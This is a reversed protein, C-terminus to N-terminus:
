LYIRFLDSDENIFIERKYIGILDAVKLQAYCYSYNTSYVAMGHHHPDLNTEHYLLASVQGHLSFDVDMGQHLRSENEEHSAFGINEGHSFSDGEMGSYICNQFVSPHSFDKNAEHCLYGDTVEYCLRGGSWEHRSSNGTIGHHLSDMTMGHYMLNSVKRQRVLDKFTEYYYLNNNGHLESNDHLPRINNPKELIDNKGVLGFDDIKDMNMMEGVSCMKMYTTINLVGSSTM